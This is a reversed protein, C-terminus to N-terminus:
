KTVPEGSEIAKSLRSIERQLEISSEFEKNFLVKRTPGVVRLKSGNSTVQYKFLYEGFRKFDWLSNVERIRANRTDKMARETVDSLIKLGKLAGFQGKEGEYYANLICLANAAEAAQAPISLNAVLARILPKHDATAYKLSKLEHTTGNVIVTIAQSM